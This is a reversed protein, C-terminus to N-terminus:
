SCRPWIWGSATRRLEKATIKSISGHRWPTKLVVTTDCRLGAASLELAPGSQRVAELVVDRDGRLETTALKLVSGHQRGAKLFVKCVHSAGSGSAGDRARRVAKFVVDLKSHLETATLEEAAQAHFSTVDQRIGKLM